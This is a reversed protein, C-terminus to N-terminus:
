GQTGGEEKLHLSPPFPGLDPLLSGSRSAPRERASPLWVCAWSKNDTSRDRSCRGALGHACQEKDPQAAVVGERAIRRGGCTM